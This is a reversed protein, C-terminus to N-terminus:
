NRLRDFRERLLQFDNWDPESGTREKALRVMTELDEDDLAVVYGHGDRAADRCRMEFLQQDEFSRCVVIGFQGRSPGLRMAIQDLEPNALDRSYNKCEVPITAAPYHLSLWRFFGSGAINDYRIDLRKRGEHIETELKENGLSSDFLATLLAAVARHYSTAGGRGPKIAQVEELLEDFDVPPAGLEAFTAHPPPPFKEVTISDRYAALAQPRTVAERTMSEKDTGYKREIAKLRPKRRGDRLVQILASDARREEAVFHPRLYGRYFNGADTIFRVRVISKPVLLLKDGAARPLLAHSDRWERGEVDWWPGTEQLQTRINYFSCMHQTYDILSARIVCTTVDSIIDPGLGPIFLVSDELDQLLGTSAAKSRALANILADGQRRSLGRGQSKGSSVGLHTENPEGNPGVLPEILQTLRFIDDARVATLLEDFYSQLQLRCEEAWAGPQLRIAKPDVYVPVDTDPDVDVFDLGSQTVGLNFLESVRM